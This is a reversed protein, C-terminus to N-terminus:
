LAARARLDAVRRELDPRSSAIITAHGVKRGERPAKAYSHYHAGEVPLVADAPPLSGIFNIMAAFGNGAASGLPWDLIARLHNAFQSTTAGEITWHGSNHVRPAYENALLEDGLHFCELALVGRYDLEKMLRALLERGSSAMSDGPRSYSTRLIGDAHENESLDYFVTEGSARRAGIVSVERSFRVFSEAILSGGSLEDCAGDVESGDTVIRQGKGDYGGTRRKLVLPYGLETAARRVDGANDVARYGATPIDLSEFLSKENLRDQTGRLAAADPLVPHTRAVHGVAALSVNEFEYTVIDVEEAFRELADLDDWDARVHKGVASACADAAPDFFVFELGLPIGALGLMRGLQGGGLVGITM